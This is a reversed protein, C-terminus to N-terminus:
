VPFGCPDRGTKTDFTGCRKAENPQIPPGKGNYSRPPRTLIICVM